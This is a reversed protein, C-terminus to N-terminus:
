FPPVRVDAGSSIIVHMREVSCVHADREGGGHTIISQHRVEGSEPTRRHRPRARGKWRSQGGGRRWGEACLVAHVMREGDCARESASTRERECVRM